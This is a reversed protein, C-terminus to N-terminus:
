EGEARVIQRLTSIADAIKGVAADIGARQQDSSGAALTDLDLTAGYLIQLIDAHVSQSIREREQLRAM